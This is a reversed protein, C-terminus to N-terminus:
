PRGAAGSTPDAFLGDLNCSFLKLGKAALAVRLDERLIQERRAEWARGPAEGQLRGRLVARAIDVLAPAELGALREAARELGPGQVDAGVLFRLPRHLPASRGLDEAGLELGVAGLYLTKVRRWPPVFVLGAFVVRRVVPSEDRSFFVLARNSRVARFCAVVAFLGVVLLLSLLRFM